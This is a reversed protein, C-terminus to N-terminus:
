SSIWDSGKRVVVKRGIVASDNVKTSLLLASAQGGAQVGVIKLM